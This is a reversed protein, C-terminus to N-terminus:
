PMIHVNILTREHTGLFDIIGLLDRRTRTRKMGCNGRRDSSICAQILEEEYIFVDALFFSNIETGRSGRYIFSTDIKNCM